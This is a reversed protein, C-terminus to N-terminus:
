WSLAFRSTGTKRSQLKPAKARIIRSFVEVGRCFEKLIAPEVM